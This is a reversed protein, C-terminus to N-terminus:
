PWYRNIVPVWPNRLVVGKKTLMNRKKFCKITPFPIEQPLSTNM